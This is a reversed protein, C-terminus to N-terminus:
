MELPLLANQESREAWAIFCATDCPGPAACPGPQPRGDRVCGM